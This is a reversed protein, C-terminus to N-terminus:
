RVKKKGLLPKIHREIRGRDTAITSAKKTGVGHQLYLDSLQAINIQKKEDQKEKARDEGNAAQGL